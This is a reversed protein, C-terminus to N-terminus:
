ESRFLLRRFGELKELELKMRYIDVVFKLTTWFSDDTAREIFEEFTVPRVEIREGPDLHPEAVKQCNRAIFFYSTWQIKGDSEYEKLLEWDTSKLGAEELLERKATVLPDEGEEQRGGLLSYSLPKGPQEEYSLLVHEGMTPIVQITGPRRLAEFTATSGDYMEQQWQYVSFIVGQFVKKAHDPIAM